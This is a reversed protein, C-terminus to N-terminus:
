GGEGKGAKTKAATADGLGKESAATTTKDLAGKDLAAKEAATKEAATKEAAGGGGGMSLFTESAELTRTGLGFVLKEATKIFMGM